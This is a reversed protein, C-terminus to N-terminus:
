VSQLSGFYGITNRSLHSFHLLENYSSTSTFHFTILTCFPVAEPNFCVEGLTLQCLIEAIIPGFQAVSDDYVINKKQQTPMVMFLSEALSSIWDIRNHIHM